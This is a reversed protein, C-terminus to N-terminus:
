RQDEDKEDHYFYDAVLHQRTQDHNEELLKAYVCPCSVTM